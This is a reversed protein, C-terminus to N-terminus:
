SKTLVAFPSSLDAPYATASFALTFSNGSVSYLIYFTEGV